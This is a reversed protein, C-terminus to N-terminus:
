RDTPPAEPLHRFQRAVVVSGLGLLALLVLGTLVAFGTALADGPSRGIRMAAEVVSLLWGGASIAVLGYWLWAAWRAHFLLGFGCALLYVCWLGSWLSWTAVAWWCMWAGYVVLLVGLLRVIM